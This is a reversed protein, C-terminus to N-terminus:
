TDQEPPRRVLFQVEDDENLVVDLTQDYFAVTMLQVGEQYHLTTSEVPHWTAPDDPDGDLRLWKPWGVLDPDLLRKAPCRFPYLTVIALTDSLDIVSSTKGCLYRAETACGAARDQSRRM